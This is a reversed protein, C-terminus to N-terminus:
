GLETEGNNIVDRPKFAPLDLLNGFPPYKQKKESNLETLDSLSVRCAMNFYIWSNLVDKYIFPKQLTATIVDAKCASPRLNSGQWFYM